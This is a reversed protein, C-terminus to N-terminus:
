GRTAGAARAARAGALAAALQRRGAASVMPAADLFMMKGRDFRVRPYHKAASHLSLTDIAGRESLGLVEVEWADDLKTLTM